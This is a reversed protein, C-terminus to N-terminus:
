RKQRKIYDMLIRFFQEPQEELIEHGCQEIIHVESNRLCEQQLYFTSEGQDDQRGYVILAPISLKKLDATIDWRSELVEQDIIPIPQFNFNLFLTELNAKSIKRKDYYMARVHIFIFAKYAQVEACDPDVRKLSDLERETRTSFIQQLLQLSDLEAQSRRAYQNDYLVNWVKYSPPASAILFLLNVLKPYRAAYAQALLGGWSYGLLAIRSDKRHQQLAYLDLVYQEISITQSNIPLNRSLGSGRQHVLVCTYLSKLSDMLQRYPHEPAEGPGGSLIYLAPGSGLVEYYLDVSGRKYHQPQNFGTISGLMLFVLLSIKTRM